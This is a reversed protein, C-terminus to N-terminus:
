TGTNGFFAHLHARNAQRPYVPPDNFSMHSLACTVRFAGVGSGSVGFDTTAKVQVAGSGVAPAPVKSGDVVPMGRSTADNPAGIIGAHASAAISLIAACGLARTLLSRMPHIVAHTIYHMWNRM